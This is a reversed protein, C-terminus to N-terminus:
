SKTREMRWMRDSFRTSASAPDLDPENSSGYGFGGACRAGGQLGEGSGAGKVDNLSELFGRCISDGGLDERVASDANRQGAQEVRLLFAGPQM